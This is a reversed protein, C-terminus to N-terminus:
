FIIPAWPQVTGSNFAEIAAHVFTVADAMNNSITHIEKNRLGPLGFTQGIANVNRWLQVFDEKKIHSVTDLKKLFRVVKKDSKGLAAWRQHKKEEEDEEEEEEDDDDDEDDDDEEEDHDHDDDDLEMGRHRDEDDDGDNPRKREEKEKKESLEKPAM